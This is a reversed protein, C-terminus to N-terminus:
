QIIKEQNAIDTRNVDKFQVKGLYKKKLVLLSIKFFFRYWSSDNLQEHFGDRSTELRAFPHSSSGQSSKEVRKPTQTTYDSHWRVSGDLGVWKFTYWIYGVNITNRANLIKLKELSDLCIIKRIRVTVLLTYHKQHFDGGDGGGCEATQIMGDRPRLSLLSHKGDSM